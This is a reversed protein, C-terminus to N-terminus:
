WAADSDHSTGLGNRPRGYDDADYAEGIHPSAVGWADRYAQESTNAWPPTLAQPEDDVVYGCEAWGAREPFRERFPTPMPDVGAAQRDTIGTRRFAPTDSPPPTFVPEGANRTAAEDLVLGLADADAEIGYGDIISNREDDSPYPMVNSDYM